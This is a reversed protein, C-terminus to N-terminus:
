TDRGVAGGHPFDSIEGFSQATKIDLIMSGLEPESHNHLSIDLIMMVFALEISYSSYAIM